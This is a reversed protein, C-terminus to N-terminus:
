GLWNEPGPSDTQSATNCPWVSAVGTRGASESEAIINVLRTLDQIAAGNACARVFAARKRDLWSRLEKLRALFAKKKADRNDGGTTITGAGNTSPQRNDTVPTMHNTQSM